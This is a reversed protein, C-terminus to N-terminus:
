PGDTAESPGRGQLDGKPEPPVFEVGTRFLGRDNPGAVHVVRAGIWSKSVPDSIRIFSGVTLQQPILLGAGVKSLDFARVRFQGMDTRVTLRKRWIWRYHRRKALEGEPAANLRAGGLWAALADIGTRRARGSKRGGSLLGHFTFGFM